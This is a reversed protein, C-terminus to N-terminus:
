IVEFSLVTLRARGTAFVGHGRAQASGLVFGVRDAQDIAQRFGVPHSAAAAGQVSIWNGDDLSVTLVHEGPTITMVSQHPSCWRYTEYM